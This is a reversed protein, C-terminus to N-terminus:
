LLRRIASRVESETKSGPLIPGSWAAAIAGRQDIVYTQPVSAAWAMWDPRHFPVSMLEAFRGDPDHLIPYGPAIETVFAELGPKSQDFSIGVVQVDDALFDRNLGEITPLTDRCPQCGSRWANVLVVRGRMGSLAWSDGTTPIGTFEPVTAGVVIEEYEDRLGVQYSFWGQVVLSSSSPRSPM